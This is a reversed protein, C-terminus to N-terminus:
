RPWRRRSALWDTAAGAYWRQHVRLWPSTDPTPLRCATWFYAALLALIGDVTTAGLHRTTESRALWADADHGDGYTCVLVGLPDIAPNGLLPWNWDCIWVREGPTILINDDRVDAHVVSNGALAADGIEALQAWEALRRRLREPTDDGETVREWAPPDDTLSGQLPQWDYTEPAPTLVAAVRDLATLVLRLEDSRWPRAPHRGDIDELGLVIWGDADHVWLPRAAPVTGPLASLKRVEERYSDAFPRRTADDAAKVFVRRGDALRLRSAFGPTFGANMSRAAVVPAGSRAEIVARVAAPLGTWGPRVATAQQPLPVTPLPM